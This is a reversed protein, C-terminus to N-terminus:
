GQPRRESVTSGTQSQQDNGDAGVKQKAQEADDKAREKGLEFDRKVRDKEDQGKGYADGLMDAAVQRGGLGFALAAGLGLSGMLTAFTILVIEKAIQLQNLVMFVGIVMVVAPVISGVLKGTATDGLLRAAAAGAAGAIAAAVVFILIAAIVNPLYALIQNMFTTVAPIKLAGIAATLVFVFALWFVVRSVANAPSADPLVNSIQKGADSGKLAKDVGLKELAKRTIGKLIKAVFYGIVLIVLFAVLNPLFAFFSDLGTQVSDGVKIAAM